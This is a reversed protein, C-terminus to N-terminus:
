KCRDLLIVKYEKFWDYIDNVDCFIDKGEKTIYICSVSDAIENEVEKILQLITQLDYEM